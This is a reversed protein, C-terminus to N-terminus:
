ERNMNNGPSHRRQYQRFSENACDNLGQLGGAGWHEFFKKPDDRMRQLVRDWMERDRQAEAECAQKREEATTM